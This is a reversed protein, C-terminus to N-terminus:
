SLNKSILLLIVILLPLFGNRSLEVATGRGVGEDHPSPFIEPASSPPLILFRGLSNEQASLRRSVRYPESGYGRRKSDDTQSASTQASSTIASQKFRWQDIERTSSQTPPPHM